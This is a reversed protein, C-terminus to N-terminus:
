PRHPESEESWHAFDDRLIRREVALSDSTQIQRDRQGRIEDLLETGRAFTDAIAARFQVRDNATGRFRTVPM